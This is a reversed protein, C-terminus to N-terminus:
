RHIQDQRSSRVPALGDIEDFFIISPRMLYAQMYLFVHVREIFTGINLWSFCGFGPTWHSRVTEGSWLALTAATWIWGGVQQPLRSREEHLIFGEQRGSQVWQGPSTSLPNKRDRSSRLVLVRKPHLLSLFSFKTKNQKKLTFCVCGLCGM